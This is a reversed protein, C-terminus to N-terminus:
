SVLDLVTWTGRLDHKPIWSKKGWEGNFFSRCLMRVGFWRNKDLCYQEGAFYLGYHTLVKKPTTLLYLCKQIKQLKGQVRTSKNFVEGSFQFLLQIFTRKVWFINAFNDCWWEDSGKKAGPSKNGTLPMFLLSLIDIKENKQILWILKNFSICIHM